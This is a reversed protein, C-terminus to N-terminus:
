VYPTTPLTLHTYSVPRLYFSVNGSAPISGAARDTIINDVPFQVLIRSNESSTAQSQGYIHFIEMSDAAGMNSGTGRTTLNSKFANTITTDANAVYKKVAM